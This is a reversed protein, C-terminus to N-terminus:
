LLIISDEEQFMVWALESDFWGRKWLTNILFACFKVDVEGTHRGHGRTPLTFNETKRQFLYMTLLGNEKQCVISFTHSVRSFKQSFLFSVLRSCFLCM